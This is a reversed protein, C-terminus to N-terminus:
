ALPALFTFYITSTALLLRFFFFLGLGISSSLLLSVFLRRSPEIFISRRTTVTELAKSARSTRKVLQLLPFQLFLSSFLLFRSLLPLCRVRRRVRIYGRIIHHLVPILLSRIGSDVLMFSRSWGLDLDVPGCSRRWRLRRYQELSLTWGRRM